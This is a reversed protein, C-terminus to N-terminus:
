AIQYPAGVAQKDILTKLAADAANRDSGIQRALALAIDQWM